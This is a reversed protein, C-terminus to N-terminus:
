SLGLRMHFLFLFYHHIHREHACLKNNQSVFDAVGWDVVPSSIMERLTELCGQTLFLVCGRLM